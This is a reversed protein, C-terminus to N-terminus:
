FVGMNPHIKEAAWTRLRQMFSANQVELGGTTGSSAKPFSGGPGAKLEPLVIQVGTHTGVYKWLLEIEGCNAAEIKIDVVDERNFIPLTITIQKQKQFDIKFHDAGIIDSHIEVYIIEGAKFGIHLVVERYDLKAVNKLRYTACRVSEYNKGRHEAAAAHINHYDVKEMKFFRIRSKRTEVWQNFLFATVSSTLVATVWSLISWNFAAKALPPAASLATVVNNTADLIQNTDAM